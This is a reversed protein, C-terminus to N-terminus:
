NKLEDINKQIVSKPLAGRTRHIEKGDRFYLISPISIINYKQATEHNHDIDMKGVIVDSNNAALEDIIPAIMRCPGCWAAWFDIIVTSNSDLIEKINQDTIELAM